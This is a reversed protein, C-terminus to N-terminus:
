NDDEDNLWDYDFLEVNNNKIKKFERKNKEVDESTKIGKKRWEYLIREIYRLNSNSGNYVAEKLACLILEETYSNDLWNNIIEYEMPSLGRGMEEEFKEFLNENKNESSKGVNIIFFALKEYLLDLNIVENSIMNIKVIDIAIIGKEVLNNILELVENMKLNLDNSIQKPNYTLSDCNILYILIIFEIDTINLKKYNFLLEKPFHMEKGKLLELVHEM